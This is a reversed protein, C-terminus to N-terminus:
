RGKDFTKNIPKIPKISKKLIIDLFTNKIKQMSENKNIVNILEIKEDDPLKLIKIKEKILNDKDNGIDFVINEIQKKLDLKSFDDLEIQPAYDNKVKNWELTKEFLYEKVKGEIKLEDIQKKLENKEIKLEDIKEIYEKKLENKLEQITKHGNATAGNLLEVKHGLKKSVADQMESHFTRLMSRCVVEKGCLRKDPTIPVFAFHMHPTTEDLHVQASIVFPFRECCYEYCAKFFAKEDTENKPLTIALDCMLVANSKLHGQLSECYGLVAKKIDKPRKDPNPELNYNLATKSHDICDNSYSKNLRYYHRLLGGVQKYKYKKFHM